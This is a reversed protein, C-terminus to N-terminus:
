AAHTRRTNSPVRDASSRDKLVNGPLCVDFELEVADAALRARHLGNEVLGRDTTGHAGEVRRGFRAGISVMIRLRRMCAQKRWLRV